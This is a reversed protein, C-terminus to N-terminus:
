GTLHVCVGTFSRRTKPCTAWDSDVYGHLDMADHLPRGDLLLDHESSHIRPPEAAPLADNPTSRWYHLGDDKTLYLYKLIHKVAHYHIEAPCVSSQTCGVVAYSIDPRCTVMAYILEGIGSRYGFGMDKALKDQHAHDPDGIALLFTKIFSEWGPLPTPKGMPADFIKMWNSLHKLSIKDLYTLCIIKVYDHTQIIDLSNYLDLLGM